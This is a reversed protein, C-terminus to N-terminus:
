FLWSCDVEPLDKPDSFIGINESSIPTVGFIRRQHAQAIELQPNKFTKLIYNKIKRTKLELIDCKEKLILNKNREEDLESAMKQQKMRRRDRCRRSAENNLDRMRRYKSASVEDDTLDTSDSLQSLESESTSVSGTQMRGLINSIASPSTEPQPERKRPRPSAKVESNELVKVNQAFSETKSDLASQSTVTATIKATIQSPSAGSIGASLGSLGPIDGEDQDDIVWKMISHNELFRTEPSMPPTKMYSSAPICVATPLSNGEPVSILFHQDPPLSPSTSSPSTFSDGVEEPPSQPLIFSEETSPPATLCPGDPTIDVIYLPVPTKPPSLSSGATTWINEVAISGQPKTDNSVPVKFELIKTIKQDPLISNDESQSTGSDEGSDPGRIAALFDVEWDEQNEQWSSSLLVAPDEQNTPAAEAPWCPPSPKELSM